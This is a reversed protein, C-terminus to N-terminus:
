EGRPRRGRASVTIVTILLMMIFVSVNIVKIQTFQATSNTM